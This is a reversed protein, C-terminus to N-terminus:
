QTSQYFAKADASFAKRSEADTYFMHGGRYLLLQARSPDRMPPLHDLVYRSAAYPTVMDAYGHAVLLRFSPIFALLERLEDSASASNRGSDGWDWKGAIDSALLIYSMETKFGLEDRAYAAYAAGYARTLSDLVPDGGRASEQEPFPDPVAFTVDYHSVVKGEGSRLHKIYADRIFGRSRGVVDEPLGTIKAVRAYFERAAEGQPRPGALRSPDVLRRGRGEVARDAGVAEIVQGLADTAVLGVGADGFGAGVEALGLEAEDVLPREAVRRWREFWPLVDFDRRPNGDEGFIDPDRRAFPCLAGQAHLAPCLHWSATM